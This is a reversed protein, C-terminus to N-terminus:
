SEVDIEEVSVKLFHETRRVHVKAEEQALEKEDHLRSRWPCVECEAQHKKSQQKERM